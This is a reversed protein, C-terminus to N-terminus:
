VNRGKIYTNQQVTCFNGVNRGKVVAAQTLLPAQEPTADKPPSKIPVRSEEIDFTGEPPPALMNFVYTYLIIAGVWQGFSIYATGDTSCKEYDGFPNSKDRCLASILVLSVNGINWSRVGVKMKRCQHHYHLAHLGKRGKEASALLCALHTNGMSTLTSSCLQLVIM